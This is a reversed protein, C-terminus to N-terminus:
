GLSLCIIILEEIIDPLLDINLILDVMSTNDLNLFLLILIGRM